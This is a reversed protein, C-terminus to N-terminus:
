RTVTDAHREILLAILDSRTLGLRAVNRACAELHEDTLKVSIPVRGKGRFLSKPGTRTGQTAAKWCWRHCYLARWAAQAQPRWEPVPTPMPGGCKACRRDDVAVAPAKDRAIQDPGHVYRRRYSPVAVEVPPVPWVKKPRGGKAGNARAADVKAVSTSQGGKLGGKRRAAEDM